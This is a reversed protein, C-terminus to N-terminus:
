SGQVVKNAEVILNAAREKKNSTEGKNQPKQAPDDAPMEAFQTMVALMKTLAGSTNETQTKLQLKLGDVQETFQAPINLSRYAAIAQEEIAKRTAEDIKWSFAYQMLAMVMTELNTIREEPTGAAFKAALAQMQTEPTEEVPSPTTGATVATIVGDTGVAVVTGDELTVGDDLLTVGDASYVKGGIDLKDIKITVGSTTKYEKLTDAPETSPGAADAFKSKIFAGIEALADKFSLKKESM